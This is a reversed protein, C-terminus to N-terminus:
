LPCASGPACRAASPPRTRRPRAQPRTPRASQAASLRDRPARRSRRAACNRPLRCCWAPPPPDVRLPIRVLRALQARLAGLPQLRSPEHPVHVSTPVGVERQQCGIARRLAVPGHRVSERCGVTGLQPMPDHRLPLRAFRTLQALRAELPEFADRKAPAALPAHQLRPRGRACELGVKRRRRM